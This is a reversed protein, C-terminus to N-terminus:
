QPAIEWRGDIMSASVGGAHRVVADCADRGKGNFPLAILDALAGSKM